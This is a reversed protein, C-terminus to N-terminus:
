FIDIINFFFSLGRYTLNEQHQYPADEEVRSNEQLSEQHQDTHALQALQALQASWTVTHIMVDDNRWGGATM